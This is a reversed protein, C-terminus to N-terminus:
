QRGRNRPFDVVGEELFNLIQRAISWNAKPGYHTGDYSKDLQEEPLKKFADMVDLCLMEGSCM